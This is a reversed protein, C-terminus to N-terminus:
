CASSAEASAARVAPAGGKRRRGPQTSRMAWFLFPSPPPIVPKSSGLGPPYHPTSKITQLCVLKALETEETIRWTEKLELHHETRISKTAIMM